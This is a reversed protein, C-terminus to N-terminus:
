YHIHNKLKIKFIIKWRQCFKCYLFYLPSFSAVHGIHRICNVMKKSGKLYYGMSKAIIWISDCSRLLSSLIIEFLLQKILVSPIWVTCFIHECYVDRIRKWRLRKPRILKSRQKKQQRYNLQTNLKHIPAFLSWPVKFLSLFIYLISKRPFIRCCDWASRYWRLCFSNLTNHRYGLIM